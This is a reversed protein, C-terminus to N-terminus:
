FEGLSFLDYQSMLSLTFCFNTSSEMTIPDELYLVLGSCWICWRGMVNGM